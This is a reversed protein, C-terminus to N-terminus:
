TKSSLELAHIAPSAKKAAQLDPQLSQRFKTRAEEPVISKLKGEGEAAVRRDVVELFVEKELHKEKIVNFITRYDEPHILGM